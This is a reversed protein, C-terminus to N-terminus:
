RALFDRGAAERGSFLPTDKFNQLFLSGAHPDTCATLTGRAKAKGLFGSVRKTRHETLATECALTVCYYM